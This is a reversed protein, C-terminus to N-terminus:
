RVVLGAPGWEQLDTTRGRGFPAGLEHVSFRVYRGHVDVV